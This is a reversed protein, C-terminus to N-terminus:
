QDIEELAKRADQVREQLYDCLGNLKDLAENRTTPWPSGNGIPQYSLRHLAERAVKLKNILELIVDPSAAAIFERDCPLTLRELAEEESTYWPSNEEDALKALEELRALKPTM